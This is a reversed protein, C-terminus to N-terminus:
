KMLEELFPLAFLELLEFAFTFIFAIILMLMWASKKRRRKANEIFENKEEYSWKDPLMDATVGGSPMGRNYIIYAAIFGSFAILYAWFVFGLEFYVSARYVGFVAATIVILTILKVVTEKKVRKEDEGAKIPPRSKGRM